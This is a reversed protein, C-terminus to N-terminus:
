KLTQGKKVWCNEEVDGLEHFGLYPVLRVGGVERGIGVDLDGGQPLVGVVCDVVVVPRPQRDQSDDGEEEENVEVGFDVLVNLNTEKYCNIDM